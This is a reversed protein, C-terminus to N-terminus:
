LPLYWKLFISLIDSFFSMFLDKEFSRLAIDACLDMTRTATFLFLLITPIPSSFLLAQGYAGCIASMPYETTFSYRPLPIPVIITLSSSFLAFPLYSIIVAPLNELLIADLLSKFFSPKLLHPNPEPNTLRPLNYM